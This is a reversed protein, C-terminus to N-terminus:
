IHESHNDEPLMSCMLSLSIASETKDFETIYYHLGAGGGGGEM